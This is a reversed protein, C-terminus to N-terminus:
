GPSVGSGAVGLLIGVIIFAGLIVGLVAVMVVRAAFSLEREDDVDRDEGRCSEPGRVVVAIGAGLPAIPGSVFPDIRVAPPRSTSTTSDQLTSRSSLRRSDPIRTVRAARITSRTRPNASIDNREGRDGPAPCHVEVAVPVIQLRM